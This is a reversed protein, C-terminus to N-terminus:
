GLFLTAPFTMSSVVVSGALELMRTMIGQMLVKCPRDADIIIHPIHDESRRTNGQQVDECATRLKDDRHKTEFYQALRKPRRDKSSHCLCLLLIIARKGDDIAYLREAQGKFSARSEEVEM